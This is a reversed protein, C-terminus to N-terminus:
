IREEVIRNKITNLKSVTSSLITLHGMKRNYKSELKMYDHVFVDTGYKATLRKVDQGLVNIMLSPNVMKPTIVHLGMVARMHNEFQSVTCGEISYHGSNHPRPAFENFIVEDGVIFYEVALTGVYNLKRVLETSQKYALNKLQLPVSNDVLSTFLIGEKHVNISIPYCVVNDNKDRSVIVSIEYDFLVLKEVIYETSSDPHFHDLDNKNQIVYQGKGDYGGTTTKIIVPYEFQYKSTYKEFIATPIGLENVYEKEILRNRSYYLGPAKQPIFEEYTSVLDIDVNEFEYTIVDTDDVLKRFIDKDSYGGIIMKDAVQSLPCKPNPDLGVIEVDYPKAAEAMMLGLQGGGIIGIRM